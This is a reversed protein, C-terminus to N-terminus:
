IRRVLKQKRSLITLKVTRSKAINKNENCLDWHRVFLIKWGRETIARKFSYTGHAEGADLNGREFPVHGARYHVRNRGIVFLGADIAIFNWM